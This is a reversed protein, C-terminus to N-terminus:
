FELLECSSSSVKILQEPKVDITSEVLVSIEDSPYKFNNSVLVHDNTDSLMAAADYYGNRQFWRQYQELTPEFSELEVENDAQPNEKTHNLAVPNKRTILRGDVNPKSQLLKQPSFVGLEKLMEMIEEDYLANEKRSSSEPSVKKKHSLSAIRKSKSIKYSNPLSAEIADVNEQIEDTVFSDNGWRKIL